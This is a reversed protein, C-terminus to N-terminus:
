IKSITATHCDSTPEFDLSRNLCTLEDRYDHTVFLIHTQSNISIYDILTLVQTRSPNDLGICPEDLLLILPLKVMARVILVQRQEGFSLESFPRTEKDKIGLLELWERAIKWQADSPKDYLGISDFFGSVVAELVSVSAKYDRHLSSSLTL